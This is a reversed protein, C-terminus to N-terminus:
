VSRSQNRLLVEFQSDVDIPYPDVCYWDCDNVRFGGDVIETVKCRGGELLKNRKEALATLAFEKTSYVGLVSGGQHDEGREFLWVEKM